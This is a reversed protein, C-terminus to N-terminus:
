GEKDQNDKKNIDPVFRWIKTIDIIDTEERIEDPFPAYPASLHAITVAAEDLVKYGSGHLVRVQEITGDANIAVHMILRGYLKEKAVQEPYNEQATKEIKRVWHDYYAAYRCEEITSNIPKRRPSATIPTDLQPYEDSGPMGHEFSIRERSDSNETVDSTTDGNQIDTHASTDESVNVTSCASLIFLLVIGVTVPAVKHQSYLSMSFVRLDGIFFTAV